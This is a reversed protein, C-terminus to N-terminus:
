KDMMCRICHRRFALSYTEIIERSKELAKSETLCKDMKSLDGSKIDWILDIVKALQIDDQDSM